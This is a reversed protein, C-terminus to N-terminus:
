VGQGTRGPLHGSYFVGHVRRHAATEEPLTEANEVSEPETTEPTGADAAESVVADEGGINAANDGGCGVLSLLLAMCFALEKWHLKGM